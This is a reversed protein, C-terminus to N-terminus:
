RDEVVALAKHADDLFLCSGGADLLRQVQGDATLPTAFLEEVTEDPLESRLYLRAHAATNAWQLTAAQEPNPQRRAQAEVERPDDGGRLVEAGPGLEPRARSLLVIRGGPRVVRAACAFARALDTFTHRAPDGSVGAVVVDAARPVSQRWRAELRREGERSADATGALVAAVDEGAGEIIQVFFPAGLLWATETALAHAPWPAEGDAPPVDLNLGGGVEARTAADSLAPFLAGEAGGSGLLPDYRRASLVVTQDADVVTRNLYLRQGARTTNLYSLRKRDTPDHIELRADQFEDPLEDLWGQRSASPPCLLTVAEVAVGAKLIHELLPALLRALQPLSEDVVVTVRDGPILARRLPPFGFPEELAARVAAAPDALPPPAPRIPILNPEAVEYDLRERGCDITIRM